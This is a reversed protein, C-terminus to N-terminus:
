IEYNERKILFIDSYDEIRFVKETNHGEPTCGTETYKYKSNAYYRTEIRCTGWVRNSYRNTKRNFLVPRTVKVYVLKSYRPFVIEDGVKLESRRVLM